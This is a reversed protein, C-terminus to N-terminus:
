DCGSKEEESYDVTEDAREENLENARVAIDNDARANNSYTSDSNPDTLDSK